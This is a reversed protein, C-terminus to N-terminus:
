TLCHGNSVTVLPQQPDWTGLVVPTVHLAGSFAVCSFASTRCARCTRCPWTRVEGVREVEDYGHVRM